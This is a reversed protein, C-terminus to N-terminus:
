LDTIQLFFFSVKSLRPYFVITKHLLLTPRVTKNEILVIYISYSYMLMKLSKSTFTVIIVLKFVESILYRIAMNM